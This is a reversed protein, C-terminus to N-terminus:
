RTENDYSMVGRRKFGKPNPSVLSGGKSMFGGGVTVPINCVPNLSVLTDPVISHLITFFIIQPVQIKDLM